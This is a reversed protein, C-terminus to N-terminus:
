CDTVQEVALVDPLDSMAEAEEPTITRYEITPKGDRILCLGTKHGDKDTSTVLYSREERYGPHPLYPRDVSLVSGSATEATWLPLSAKMQM